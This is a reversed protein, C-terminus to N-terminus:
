ESGDVRPRPPPSDVTVALDRVPIVAMEATRHSKVAYGVYLKGEREIAYPYCLTAKPDSPGPGEPFVAQRIVFVQSFQEEGPRSVAITLPSRRGGSDATTTCVLYNQGTSLTGAYPKSTAMLLNSPASRTWTRGYDDSVAALAKAQGGWRSINLSRSGDVIVTSEGWVRRVGPATPIVVLDWKTLDDGHSIAVAPLHGEMNEYGIAVRAGAMIWNGDDMRQPEQLAWFGQGVVVGQPQWNGTTDDLLYARTHTRQFHDYFAGHFAWLEEGRSLFVGHSVGLNGQGEDIVAVEGWTRGDDDSIRVHAQETATNESGTNFGYSAYLKENHWALAVGLLWNGGDKEPEHPKIVSFRVDDLEPIDAAKPIPRGKWLVFPEVPTPVEHPKTKRDAVAAISADSLVGPFLAVEDLAGFFMQRRRGGDNVGGMTLPAPTDPLGDGLDGEAELKGDIYLRAKGRDVTVTVHYWRGPEPVTKSGLTKWGDAKKYFRFHDDHDIMLGWERQDASYVNKAVIMQQGRGLGYVNIWAAVSFTAQPFSLEPADAVSVYQAAGDLKLSQGVVGPAEGPSAHLKGPHKGESDPTVSSDIAEFSWRAVPTATEAATISASSSLVLSAAIASVGITSSCPLFRV